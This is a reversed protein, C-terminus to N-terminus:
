ESERQTILALMAALWDPDLLFDHGHISTWHHKIKSDFFSGCGRIMHVPHGLWPDNRSLFIAIRNDPNPRWWELHKCDMGSIIVGDVKAKLGQVVRGGESHGSVFIRQFGQERLWSVQKEMELRRAEIRSPNRTEPWGEPRPGGPCSSDADGRVLFRMVVINVKSKTFFYVLDAEDLTPGACGHLHVLVPEERSTAELFTPLDTGRAWVGWQDMLAYPHYRSRQIAGEIMAASTDYVKASQASAFLSICMLFLTVAIRM